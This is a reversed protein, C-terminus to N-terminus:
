EFIKLVILCVILSIKFIVHFIIVYINLFNYLSIIPISSNITAIILPILRIQPITYLYTFYNKCKRKLKILSIMFSKRFINIGAYLIALYISPTSNIGM